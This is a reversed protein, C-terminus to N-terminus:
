SYNLPLGLKRFWNYLTARSVNGTKMAARIGGDQYVQHLDRTKEPSMKLRLRAQIKAHAALRGHFMPNQKRQLAANKAPHKKRWADLKRARKLLVSLSTTNSARMKETTSKAVLPFSAPINFQERYDAQNMDHVKLHAALGRYWRQCVLCQIRDGSHYEQVQEPTTFPGAPPPAFDKFDDLKM